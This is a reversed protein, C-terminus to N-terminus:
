FIVQSFSSIRWSHKSGVPYFRFRNGNYYLYRFTLTKPPGLQMEDEEAIKVFIAM